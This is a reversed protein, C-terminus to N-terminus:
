LHNPPLWEPEDALVPRGLLRAARAAAALGTEYAGHATAHFYRHVHEGALFM